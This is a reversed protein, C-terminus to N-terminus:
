IIRVLPVRGGATPMNYNNAASAMYAHGLGVGAAFADLDDDYLGPYTTIVGGDTRIVLLRGGATAMDYNNVTALLYEGGVAVGGAMAAADDAYVGYTGVAGGDTRVVLLRGGATYMDYANLTALRYREGLGVSNREAEEDNYFPGPYLSLDDDSANLFPAKYKSRSRFTFTNRNRSGRPGNETPQDILRLQQLYRQYGNKDIILANIRINRLFHSLEAVAYRDKRITFTLRQEYFDGGKNSDLRESFAGSGPDIKITYPLTGPQYTISGDLNPVGYQRPAAAVDEPLILRVTALGAPNPGCAREIDRLQCPM